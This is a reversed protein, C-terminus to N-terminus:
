TSPILVLIQENNRIEIYQIYTQENKKNTLKGDEFKQCLREAAKITDEIFEELVLVIRDCNNLPKLHTTGEKEQEKRHTVVYKKSPRLQHLFNCRFEEYLYHSNNEKAYRHYKSPFLKKIAKKFRKESQGDSNFDLEDFCAGLFEIVVAINVFKIYAADGNKLQNLESIAVAKIFEVLQIDKSNNKTM